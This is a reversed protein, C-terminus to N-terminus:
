LILLAADAAAEGGIEVGAIALHLGTELAAEGAGLAASQIAPIADNIISTKLARYTSYFFPEAAEKVTGFETARAYDYPKEAGASSNESKTTLQGGAQVRYRSANIRSVVISKALEGKRIPVRERMAGALTQAAKEVASQAAAETQRSIASLQARLQDVSARSM